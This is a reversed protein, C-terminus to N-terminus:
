NNFVYKDAYERMKKRLKAESIFRTENEPYLDLMFFTTRWKIMTDAYHNVVFAPYESRSVPLQGGGQRIQIKTTYILNKLRSNNDEDIFSGKVVNLFLYECFYLYYKKEDRNLSDMASAIDLTTTFITYFRQYDLSFDGGGYEDKRGLLIFFASRTVSKSQVNAMFFGHCAALSIFLNNRTAVNIAIIADSLDKWEMFEDSALYIGDENGHLAFHLMPTAMGNKVDELISSLLTQMEVKSKISYYQIIPLITEQETLRKYLYHGSAYDNSTLSEIIILKGFQAKYVKKSMHEVEEHLRNKQHNQSQSYPKFMQINQKKTM